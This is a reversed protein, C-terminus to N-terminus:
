LQRHPKTSLENIINKSGELIIELEEFSPSYGYHIVDTRIKWFSKPLQKIVKSIQINDSDMAKILEDFRQDFNKKKEINGDQILGFEKRKNNIVIDIASLYCTAIAWNEDLKLINSGILERIRSLASIKNLESPVFSDFVNIIIYLDNILGYITNKLSTQDFLNLNVDNLEFMILDIKREYDSFNIEQNEQSNTPIKNFNIKISHLINKLESMLYRCEDGNIRNQRAEQKIKEITTKLKNLNIAVNQFLQEIM